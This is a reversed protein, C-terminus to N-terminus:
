DILWNQWFYVFMVCQFVKFLDVYVAVHCFKPTFSKFFLVVFPHFSVHGSLSFVSFIIIFLQINLSFFSCHFTWFGLFPDNSHFCCVLAAKHLFKAVNQLLMLIMTWCAGGDLHASKLRLFGKRGWVLQLTVPSAAVTTYTQRRCICM